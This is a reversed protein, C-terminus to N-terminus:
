GNENTLSGNELKNLWWFFILIMWASTINFLTLYWFMHTVALSCLLWVQKKIVYILEANLIEGFYHPQDMLGKAQITMYIYRLMEFLSDIMFDSVNKNYQLESPKLRYPRSHIAWDVCIKCIVAISFYTNTIGLFRFTVIWINYLIVISSM